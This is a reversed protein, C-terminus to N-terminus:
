ARPVLVAPSGEVDVLDCWLVECNRLRRGTLSAFIGAHGVLAITQEPRRALMATLERMRDTPDYEQLWSRTAPWWVEPMEALGAWEKVHPWRAILAAQPLGRDCTSLCRESCLPSLELPPHHAPVFVRTATEITRSLPSCLVVDVRRLPDDPHARIRECLTDAQKQGIPDLTVDQTFLVNGLWSIGGRAMNHYGQGHRLLAIRKTTREERALDKAM